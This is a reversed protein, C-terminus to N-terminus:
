SATDPRGLLRDLIIAAASRVALHNYTGPGKIPALVVDAAAMFDPALGWATGFVLVTPQGDSLLVRLRGYSMARSSPRASTVVLRPPGEGRAAIEDLVAPMADKLRVLELAERRKPNYQGGPGTTWHAVIREVLDQQDVLPTVVFFDGIGFTRATRAMDHLDLSTVASTVTDGNKNVVPHHVLAL